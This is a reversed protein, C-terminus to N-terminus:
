LCTEWILNHFQRRFTNMVAIKEKLEKENKGFGGLVRNTLLAVVCKRELDIWISTGTFGLHGIAKKSINGATSNESPIDWGLARTNGNKFGTDIFTKIVPHNDFYGEMWRNGFSILDTINGFLGAHGSLKGIYQADPDHVVGPKFGEDTRVVHDSTNLQKTSKTSRLNWKLQIRESWLSESTQKLLVSFIEALFIFGPDSYITKTRVAYAPKSRALAQVLRTSVELPDELNKKLDPCLKPFRIGAPFGARHLLLDELTCDAYEGPGLPLWKKLPQYIDIKGEEMLQSALTATYVVKTLSALDFLSDQKIEDAKPEYSTKGYIYFFPKSNFPQIGVACASFKKENAATYILEKIRPNIM